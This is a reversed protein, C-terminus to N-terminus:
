VQDQAVEPSAGAEAEAPPAEIQPVEVVPAPEEPGPRAAALLRAKGVAADALAQAASTLLQEKLERRKRENHWVNENSKDRVREFVTFLITGTKVDFLTAEMVGAVEITQSPVVFAGIVTPYLWGWSNTWGRQVFRHRYLLLYESRYRAALERLGSIGRDSPWDTSIETTVEFLGAQEMTGSLVAPVAQLPMEDDPDYRDTVQIVGIRAGQELYVPADLVRRLDEESIRGAHDGQFHNEKLEEPPRAAAAELVLPALMPSRLPSSGACGSAGLLSAAALLGGMAIACMKLSDIRM